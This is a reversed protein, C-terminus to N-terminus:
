IITLLRIIPFKGFLKSDSKSETADSFDAIAVQYALQSENGLTYNVRNIFNEAAIKTNFAACYQGGYWIILRFEATESLLEAFKNVQKQSFFNKLEITILHLNQFKGM